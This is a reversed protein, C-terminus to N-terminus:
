NHREFDKTTCVVGRADTGTKGNHCLAGTDKDSGTKGKHRVSAAIAM